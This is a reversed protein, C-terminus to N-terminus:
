ASVEYNRINDSAWGYKRSLFSIGGTNKMLEVLENWKTGQSVVWCSGGLVLM